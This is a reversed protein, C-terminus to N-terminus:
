HSPSCDYRPMEAEQQLRGLAENLSHCSWVFVCSTTGDANALRFRQHKHRALVDLIQPILLKELEVSAGHASRWGALALASRMADVTM